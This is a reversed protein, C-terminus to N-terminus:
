GGSVGCGRRVGVFGQFRGQGVPDVAAVFQGVKKGMAAPRDADVRLEDTGVGVKRPQREHLHRRAAPNRQRIWEHDVVQGREVRSQGVGPIDRDHVTGTLIDADERRPQRVRDPPKEVGLKRRREGAEAMADAVLRQDAGDAADFQRFAFRSRVPQSTRERRLLEFVGRLIDGVERLQVVVEAAADVCAALAGPEVGITRAEDRARRTGLGVRLRLARQPRCRVPRQFLLRPQAPDQQPALCGRPRDVPRARPEDVIRM